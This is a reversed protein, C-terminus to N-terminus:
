SVLLALFAEELREIYSWQRRNQKGNEAMIVDIVLVAEKKNVKYFDCSEPFFFSIKTSSVLLDFAMLMPMVFSGGGRVM